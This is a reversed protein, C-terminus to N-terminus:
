KRWKINVVKNSEQEEIERCVRSGWGGKDMWERAETMLYPSNLSPFGTKVEFVEQRNTEVLLSTFGWFDVRKEGM